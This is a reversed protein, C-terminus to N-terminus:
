LQRRPLATRVFDNFAEALLEKRAAWFDEAREISWLAHDTPVCQSELIRPKVSKLYVSPPTQGISKNVDGSIFAINAVCDAQSRDPLEFQGRPLIHHRDIAPQLLVRAGTFFDLVGRSHCAIYMALLANRDAIAGDFDDPEALLSSREQRLNSLLSRLPDPSRCARLDQDLATESAGSYRHALAALAIWAAIGRADRDRPSFTACLAIVPVVLAGSWLINMNVLGLESRILNIAEGTARQTEAWASLVAKSELEHLPTRNRGDPQAVFACARFLHMVNMRTFGQDRLSQLFPAVGDAIFGSHRAAVKASEIDQDVMRVLPIEYDLVRRLKEFRAERRDATRGGELNRRLQRFLDDDWIDCVRYWNRDNRTAANALRFEETDPHFVVDIGEDGSLTRAVTIMRQQGDILWNIAMSRSPRPDRRRAKVEDSGNNQWLLLSSIPFGKYLSDILYPARGPKWVYERQFEPIVIRGARYDEILGRVKIVQHQLQPDPM